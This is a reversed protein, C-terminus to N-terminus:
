SLRLPQSFLVMFPMRLSINVFDRFMIRVKKKFNELANKVVVLMCADTDPRIDGNLYSECLTFHSLINDCLGSSAIFDQLQLQPFKGSYQSIQKAAAIFPFARDTISHSIKTMFALKSDLHHQLLLAVILGCFLLLLSTSIFLRVKEQVYFDLGIRRPLLSLCIIIITQLGTYLAIGDRDPFAIRGFSSSYFVSVVLSGIYIVICGILVISRRNEVTLQKRHEVHLELQGMIGFAGILTSAAAVVLVGIFLFDLFDRSVIVALAEVFVVATFPLRFYYLMNVTSGAPLKATTKDLYANLIWLTIIQDVIFIYSLSCCKDSRAYALIASFAQQLFFLANGLIFESRKTISYEVALDFLFYISLVMHVIQSRSWLLSSHRSDNLPCCQEGMHGEGSQYLFQRLLVPVVCVAAGILTFKM